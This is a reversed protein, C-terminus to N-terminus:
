TWNMIACDLYRLVLGPADEQRASTSQPLSVGAGECVDVYRPYATALLATNRTDLLDFCNGLHVLAGM